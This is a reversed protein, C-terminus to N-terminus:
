YTAIEYGFNYRVNWYEMEEFDAMSYIDGRLRNAFIGTTPNYDYYEVEDPRRLNTISIGRTNNNIEFHEM